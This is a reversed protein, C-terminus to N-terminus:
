PYTVHGTIHRPQVGPYGAWLEFWYWDPGEGGMDFVASGGGQCNIRQPNGIEQYVPGPGDWYVHVEMFDDPEVCGSGPDLTITTRGPNQQWNRGVRRTDLDATFGFSGAQPHYQMGESDAAPKDPSQETM